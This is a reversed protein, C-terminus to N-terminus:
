CNDESVAEKSIKELITLLKKVSLPSTLFYCHKTMKKQCGILGANKLIKLHQSLNPQSINIVKNTLTVCSPGKCLYKLIEIRRPHALAKLVEVSIIDTEAM